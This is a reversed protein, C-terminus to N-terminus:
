YEVFFTPAVRCKGTRVTLSSCKHRGQHATNIGLIPCVVLIRVESYMWLIWWHCGVFSIFLSHVLVDLPSTSFPLPPSLLFLTTTLPLPNDNGQKRATQNILDAASNWRVQDFFFTSTPHASNSTANHSTSILTPGARSMHRYCLWQSPLCVSNINKEFIIQSYGLAM